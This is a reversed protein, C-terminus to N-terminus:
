EESEVDRCLEILQDRADFLAQVEDSESETKLRQLEVYPLALIRKTLEHALQGLSVDKLAADPTPKELEKEAEQVAGKGRFTLFRAKSKPNELILPLKRVTNLPHIKLDKVWKAFDTFTFGANIIAQKVRPRQLEVFASFRTPDFQDDSELQPRYYKEIALYADIYDSVEKERGGCYDVIQKLTLHESNSLQELYKAKSYPDWPRPGVLHAQLRISDIEEQSMSDYVMAPITDWVGPINDEKFEKYIAVRTNGEIAVLKGSTEKNVLIPHIIGGNTRISAKLSLFTTANAETQSDGVGLALSIQAAPVNDGHMEVWKAIRPNNKDLEIDELQLERAKYNSKM